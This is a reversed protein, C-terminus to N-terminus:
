ITEWQVGEKKGKNSPTDAKGFAKEGQTQYQGQRGWTKDPMTEEAKGTDQIDKEKKTGGCTSPADSNGPDQTGKERITETRTERQQIAKSGERFRTEGQRGNDRRAEREGM